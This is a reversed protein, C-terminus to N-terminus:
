GGYQYIKHSVLRGPSCILSDLYLYLGLNQELKPRGSVSDGLKKWLEAVESGYNTTWTPALEM